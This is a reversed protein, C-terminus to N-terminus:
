AREERGGFSEGPQVAQEGGGGGNVVRRRRGGGGVAVVPGVSGAVGIRAITSWTVLVLLWVLV